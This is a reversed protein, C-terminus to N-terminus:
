HVGWTSSYIMTLHNTLWAPPIGVNTDDADIWGKIFLALILAGLIVWFARWIYWWKTRPKPQPELLAAQEHEDQQSERGDRSAQYDDDIPQPDVNELLPTRETHKSSAREVDEDHSM